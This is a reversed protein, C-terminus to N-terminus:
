EGQPDSLEDVLGWRHAIVADIPRGSLALWATRRRGIRRTLSVTGGAGPILGMFLEPLWIRTDPRARVTGAFAPLEIGSGACSGHITATVRGALHALLRAPSRATRVLHSTAPDPATGFETLDGGSCFSRGRGALEVQLGTDLAAVSLAECLVDRMARNYANHVEPRNLILKLRQGRREVVVPPGATGTRSLPAPRAARWARFEPGAQLTSYVWSELALGEDVPRGAGIRLLQALAVAALPFAEVRGALLEVAAAPDAASIWPRPPDPADTLLVDAGPVPGRGPSGVGVVVAPFLAPVELPGTGDLRVAM